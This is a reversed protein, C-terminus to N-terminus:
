SLLKELKKRMDSLQFPKSLFGDPMNGADETFSFDDESYGSSLVIPLDPNIKRIGHMAKIGDMEPMSIDLIAIRFNLTKNDTKDMAEQGNVATHVTFGLTELMKKGVDLVMKEDDALLINGSLQIAEDQLYDDSPIVQQTFSVTPLLLKVTTGHGSISEVIIAGHHSQMVGVTLALGLGRGIFKTTYFPEFIQALDKSTIGHGSDKIQCYTYMGDLLNANQFPIPFSDTKFYDTGFTIEVTGRHDGLSEVANTFISEIVEKIQQQDVSCYLPQDPPTFHLSISPQLISKLTTVTERALTALPVNQLKLPQQGVYSLMMSGVQSAGKAALTANSAMKYEDSNAPLTCTMLELNGQVAMMANNFRHAIAGAMTKLSEYKKLQEQSKIAELKENEQQIKGTIDIFIGDFVVEDKHVTPTSHGEFWLIEGSPKVYRGKWRWPIQKVVAEQASAMWSQQDEQHINQSFTQFFLTPNDICELEFIEHLQPSAYYIGKEGSNKFYSQVVVGPVNDTIGQLQKENALLVEEVERRKTIEQKLDVITLSISDRMHKFSQSLSKVEDTENLNFDFAHTFNGTAMEQAATTLKTIPETIKTIIVAMFLLVLFSIGIIILTLVNCFEKVEAYKITLPIKYCVTWDWPSFNLSIFWNEQDLYDTTFNGENSSLITKVWPFNQLSTDDRPITPHMVVRGDHNLIFPYIEQGNETYFAERLEKLVLTKFDESYADILRTKILREHTTHLKAKILELKELYIVHQTSDTIQRHHKEAMINISVAMVILACTTM